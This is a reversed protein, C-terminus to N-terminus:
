FVDEKDSEHHESTDGGLEAPQETTTDARSGESQRQEKAWIKTSERSQTGTGHTVARLKPSFPPFERVSPLVAEGRYVQRQLPLVLEKM